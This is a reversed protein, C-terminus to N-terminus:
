TGAAESYVDSTIILQEPTGTPRIMKVQLKQFSKSNETEQGTTSNTTKSPNNSNKIGNLFIEDTWVGQFCTINHWFCVVVAAQPGSSKVLAM